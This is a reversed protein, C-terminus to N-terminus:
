EKPLKEWKVRGADVEKAWTFFDMDGVVGTEKNVTKKISIPNDYIFFIYFEPTVAISEGLREPIKSAAEKIGIM